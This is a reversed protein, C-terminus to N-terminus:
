DNAGCYPQLVPPCVQKPADTSPQWVPLRLASPNSGGFHVTNIAVRSNTELYNAKGTNLNRELRPFAASALHLGIRHGAPVEYAIPPFRLSISEKRGPELSTPQSFGRRYRLRLVGQQIPLLAGEPSVDLLTAIVDTDPADSAFQLDLAIDGILTMPAALPESRFSLIDSRTENPRQDIPGTRLDPQGTCCIAGGLSPTPDAPDYSYNAQGPPAGQAVLRGKTSLYLLKTRTEPPPWTASTQWRDARLVFFNYNALQPLPAGRLWHALWADYLSHYGLAANRSVPLDGVRGAGFTEDFRCHEGPGVVVHQHKRTVENSSNRRMLAAEEFTGALAQDQWTSVHLAPTAFRDSSTLYGLGDWFSAHEFNAMFGEYDTPLKRHRSVLTGSPLERLIKGPDVSPAAMADRTKGGNALFWGTMSALQPVGGEFFGFYNGSKGGTGIAGGAAEAIMATHHPHRAKALMVQNEGLASCGVTAIKGNSWPQAAIWDLTAVGDAVAHDYPTFTGESAFRGRMDQLVVAYGKSTYGRVWLLGGGYTKKDYPLRVLMTPLGGPKQTPLYVDTALRTGDASKIVVNTEIKVDYHIALLRDAAQRLVPRLVGGPQALAGVALIGAVVVAIFLRGM